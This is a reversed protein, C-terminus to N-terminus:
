TGCEVRYLSLCSGSQSREWLKMMSEQAYFIGQHRYQGLHHMRPRRSLLQGVLKFTPSTPRQKPKTTWSFSHSTLSNIGSRLPLGLTRGTPGTSPSYVVVEGGVLDFLLARPPRQKRSASPCPLSVEVAEEEVVESGPWILPELGDRPVWQVQALTKGVEFPMVLATSTFSLLSSTVFAKLMSGAAPSDGLPYDDYSSEYRNPTSVRLSPTATSTSPAPSPGSSSSPSTSPITFAFDDKPVYYPRLPHSDSM